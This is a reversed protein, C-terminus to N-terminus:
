AAASPRDASPMTRKAPVDALGQDFSLGAETPSTWVVTARVPGDGVDVTVASGKQFGPNPTIRVGMESLDFMQLRHTKGGATVGIDCQSERCEARRREALDSTVAALFAEASQSLENTVTSLTESAGLVRNAERSTEAAVATVAAVSAVASRSGEAALAINRAIDQTAAEQEEIAAAIATNFHEIEGVKAAIARISRVAATTSAQIGSVQDAIEQTAKATQGALQKVESAVVAFGRGAEGARAAEITANLALLNTQGAITSIIETVAGIRGVADALSQVDRDSATASGVAESVIASARQAQGSIEKISSSLQKTAAAVTQANGAAGDSASAAENAKDAATSAVDGLAGAAGRMAATENGLSSIVNTIIGRFKHIVQELTINRQAEQARTAKIEQVLKELQKNRQVEEERMAEGFAQLKQREVANDRFVEITRAMDGIEDHRALGPINGALDNGAIRQMRAKLELLPRILAGRVLMLGILLAAVAIVALGFQFALNVQKNTEVQQYARETHQEYARALEDLQKNLGSRVTRNADNDGFTRAAATNVQNALRILETRFRVFEDINASLAEIRARESEIATMRWANARKQLEALQRSMNRAFPEAQKTDASMYIGRSEMVVAYVLGNIHELHITGQSAKDLAVQAEDSAKLLFFSVATAVGPLLGLVTIIAYLKSKLTLNRIVPM